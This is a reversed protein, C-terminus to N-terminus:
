CTVDSASDSSVLHKYELQMYSSQFIVCLQLKYM